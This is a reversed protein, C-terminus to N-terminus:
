FDGGGWFAVVIDGMWNTFAMRSFLAAMFIAPPIVTFSAAM